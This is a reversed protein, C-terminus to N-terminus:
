VRAFTCLWVCVCVYAVVCLGRSGLACARMVCWACRLVWVWTRVLAPPTCVARAFRSSRALALLVLLRLLVFSAVVLRLASCARCVRAVASRSLCRLCLLPLPCVSTLVGFAVWGCRSRRGFWGSHWRYWVVVCSVCYVWLCACFLGGACDSVRLRVSGCVCVCTRLWACVARASRVRM